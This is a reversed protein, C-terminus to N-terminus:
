PEGINGVRRFGAAELYPRLQPKWVREVFRRQSATLQGGPLNGHPGFEPEFTREIRAWPGEADHQLADVAIDFLYKGPTMPAPTLLPAGADDEDMRMPPNRIPAIARELRFDRPPLVSEVSLRAPAGVACFLDFIALAKPSTPMTRFEAVLFAFVPDMQMSFVCYDLLAILPKGGAAFVEELRISM